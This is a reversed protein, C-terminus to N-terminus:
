KVLGINQLGKVPRQINSIEISNQRKLHMQSSIPPLSSTKSEYKHWM